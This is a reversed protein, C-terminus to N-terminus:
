IFTSYSDWKPAEGAVNSARKYIFSFVHEIGEENMACFSQDYFLLVHVKNQKTINNITNATVAHVNSPIVLRPSITKYFKNYSIM